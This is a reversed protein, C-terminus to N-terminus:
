AQESEHHFRGKEIAIGPWAFDEQLLKPSTDCCKVYKDCGHVDLVCPWQSIKLAALLGVCEVLKRRTALKKVHLMKIINKTM